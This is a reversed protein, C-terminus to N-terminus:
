LLVSVTAEKPAQQMTLGPSLVRISTCFKWTASTLRLRIVLAQCFPKLILWFRMKWEMVYYLEEEGSATIRYWNVTINLQEGSTLANHLLPTAKDIMKTIQMPRMAPVSTIQGTQDNTGRPVQHYFSQIMIEDEHGDQSATGVSDEGLAGASIEGQNQGEIIMYAPIAM